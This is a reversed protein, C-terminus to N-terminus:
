ILYSEIGIKSANICDSKLNDGLMICDSPSCDIKKLVAQYLAGEKKTKGFDCSSFIGDFYDQINQKKFFMEIDNSSLRFDSVCFIKCKNVKQEELFSVAEPIFSQSALELDIEVEHCRDLFLTKKDANLVGYYICQDAIEQYILSIPVVNHMKGNVVSNRYNYLYRSHLDFENGIKKAWKSIIDMLSLNRRIITGMCDILVIPRHSENRYGKKINYEFVSNNVENM